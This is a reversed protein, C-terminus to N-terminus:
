RRRRRRGLLAAAGLGVATLGTPEPVTGSVIQIGQVASRNTADSSVSSQALLTFTDGTLGTFVMFNGAPVTLAATPNSDMAGGGALPDVPSQALLYAGSFTANAADLAWFAANGTTAGTISYKGVRNNGGNDGDYYLIVSYPTGTISAPLGAVTVSTTSTDSSDLYGKMMKLDGPAVPPVNPTNWTNNSNWIVTATTAAANSDVLAQPTAQVAPTLSNWNSAPLAGAVETPDMMSSAASGGGGFWDISITAAKSQSVSLVGSVAGLLLAYRGASRGRSQM